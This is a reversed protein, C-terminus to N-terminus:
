GRSRRLSADKHSPGACSRIDSVMAVFLPGEMVMADRLDVVEVITDGRLIDADKRFYASIEEVVVSIGDVVERRNKTWVYCPMADSILENEAPTPPKQHGYRDVGAASRQVRARMTMCAEVHASM